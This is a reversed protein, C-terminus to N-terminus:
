PALGMSRRLVEYINTNDILKTGPYWRGEYERLLTAGPGKAYVTVPENTHYGPAGWRIEKDPYTPPRRDDDPDPPPATDAAQPSEPEGEKPAPKPPVVQRPLDGKRLKADPAFRLGGNAHDATVILLTNEWTQPTAPDEVFAIITRVAEDLQHVAGVMWAYDREHSAWDIDGGEVMLFFGNPGARHTLVSLAAATCASLPPDEPGPWSFGPRGPEDAPEPHNMYRRRGGFLGFLKRGGGGAALAKASAERLAAAGDKGAAREVFLYESYPAATAAALGEYDAKGIFTFNMGNPRRTWTVTGDVTAAGPEPNWKPVTKGSTGATTCEYFDREKSKVFTGLTYEEEKKWPFAATTAPHGAGIVVDPRTTRIIEEAIAATNDRDVNHAVFAAPTAHSFPVTTVVGISAKKQARARQTISVLAGDPPDGLSWAINGDDTKVGCSLATASSASDTAPVKKKKGAPAGWLELPKFFYDDSPPTWTGDYTLAGGLAPDYGIRPDFSGPAYKPAKRARAYRDYCTVDWTTSLTQVPLAHHALGRDTGHLYRSAAIEHALQMGDGIVLIVYRARGEEGPPPCSALSALALIWAATRSLPRIM